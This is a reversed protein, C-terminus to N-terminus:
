DFSLGLVDDVPMSFVIGQAETNLGHAECIAQMIPVKMEWYRGTGSVSFAL